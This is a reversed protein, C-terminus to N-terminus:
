KAKYLRRYKERGRERECALCITSHKNTKRNDKVFMELPKTTHCVYCECMGDKSKIKDKIINEKLPIVQMNSLEYDGEKNIRDVSAGEFDLPMFWNIFDERSVKLKVGDYHTNRKRGSGRLRSLIGNYKNNARRRSGITTYTQKNTHLYDKKNALGLRSIRASVSKATRGLHKAINYYSDKLYNNKIYFDDEKSFYKGMILFKVDQVVMLVM